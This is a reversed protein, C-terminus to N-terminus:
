LIDAGYIDISKKKKFNKNKYMNKDAKKFVENLDEETNNKIAYGVSLSLNFDIQKNINKFKKEIRSIIKKVIKENSEPLILAFEDGGIRAVIDSSRTVSKLIGAIMKISNDGEYHGYEDNIRKLLDIDAVILSVPLKWPKNNEKLQSEFYRRNYLGTLYDHFSIYLIKEEKEKLKRINIYMVYGGVMKGDIVVPIGKILCEIPSGEKDYRTGELEIHKGSLLIKTAEKDASNKHSKNMIDDVTMGKLEELKFKFTKEFEDNIDIACYNEDFLIIPETSNKFLTELWKNTNQLEQNAVIIKLHNEVKCLVEEELFPKTIFDVAGVKFGKIMDEIEQLATIFIVPIDRNKDDKKLIKCVKYGDIDPLMIDLLILDPPRKQVFDLTDKGNQAIAVQYGRAKLINTLFMINSKIDDVVLILRSEFM